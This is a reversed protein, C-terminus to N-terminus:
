RTRPIASRLTRFGRETISASAAPRKSKISYAAGHRESREKAARRVLNGIEPDSAGPKDM